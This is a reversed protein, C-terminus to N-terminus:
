WGHIGVIDYDSFLKLYEQAVALRDIFINKLKKVPKIVTVGKEKKLLTELGIMISRDPKGFYNIDGYDLVLVDGQYKGVNELYSTAM